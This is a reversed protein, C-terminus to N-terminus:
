TCLVTQSDLVPFADSAQKLMQVEAVIVNVSLVNVGPVRTFAQHLHMLNCKGATITSENNVHWVASADVVSAAPEVCFQNCPTQTSM